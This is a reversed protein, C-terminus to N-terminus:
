KQRSEISLLLTRKSLDSAPKDSLCLSAHRVTCGQTKTVRRRNCRQLQSYRVLMSFVNSTCLGKFCATCGVRVQSVQVSFLYVFHQLVLAVRLWQDALWSGSICGAVCQSSTHSEQHVSECVQVATPHSPLSEAACQCSCTYLWHRADAAACVYVSGSLCWLLVRAVIVQLRLLVNDTCTAWM